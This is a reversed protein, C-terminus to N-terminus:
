MLDKYKSLDIQFFNALTMRYKYPIKQRYVWQAVTNPKIKLYEAITIQKTSKFKKLLVKNLSIM